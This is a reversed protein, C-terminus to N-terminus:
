NRIGITQSYVRCRVHPSLELLWILCGFSLSTYQWELSLFEASMRYRYRSGLKLVQCKPMCWSVTDLEAKRPGFCIKRRYKLTRSHYKNQLSHKPLLKPRLPLAKQSRWSLCVLHMGDPPQCVRHHFSSLRDEPALWPSTFFGCHEPPPTASSHYPAHAGGVSFM